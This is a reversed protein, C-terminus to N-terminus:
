TMEDKHAFIPPYRTGSRSLALQPGRAHAARSAIPLDQLGNSFMMGGKDHLNAYELARPRASRDICRGRTPGPPLNDIETEIEEFLHGAIDM